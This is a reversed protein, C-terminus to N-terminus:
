VTGACVEACSSSCYKGDIGGGSMLQLALCQQGEDIYSELVDLALGRAM